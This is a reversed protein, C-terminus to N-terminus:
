YFSHHTFPWFKLVRQMSSYCITLNYFCCAGTIRQNLYCIPQLTFIICVHSEKCTATIHLSLSHFTLFIHTIRLGYNNGYDQANLLFFSMCDIFCDEFCTQWWSSGWFSRVANSWGWELIAWPCCRYELGGALVFCELLHIESCRWILDSPKVCLTVIPNKGHHYLM